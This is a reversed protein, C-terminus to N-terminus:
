WVVCNLGENIGGEVLCNYLMEQGQDQMKKKESVKKLVLDFSQVLLVELCTSRPSQDSLLPSLYELILLNKTRRAQLCLPKQYYKVRAHGIFYWGM